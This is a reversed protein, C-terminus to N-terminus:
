SGGAPDDEPLRARGTQAHVRRALGLGLGTAAVAVVIGTLVMAHPVPDAEAGRRALAVFLLFVGSGLVNAAILQAILGRGAVMSHLALCVLAVAVLGYVQTPTM